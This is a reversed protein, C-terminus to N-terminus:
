PLARLGRPRAGTVIRVCAGLHVTGERTHHSLRATLSRQAADRAGAGARTLLEDFNAFSALAFDAAAYPALADGLRLLGRWARVDLKEFGVHDLVSRLTDTDAYRFPGPADPAPPPVAVVRAVEERVTTLWPNESLPGWLAFAFSGGPELWHFLNAFAARADDFFMVGFRSVMRHYPREPAATSVDAVRFVVGRADPPLRERAAAILTPAIDVGHVVSGAPARRLIAATTAGGGCGLDVIRAPTDLPLAGLLPVDVPRLMAEMNDLRAHWKEGRASTWDSTPVHAPSKPTAM